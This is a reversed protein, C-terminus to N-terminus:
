DYTHWWKEILFSKGTVKFVPQQKRNLVNKGDCHLTAESKSHVVSWGSWCGQFYKKRNLQEMHNRRFEEMFAELGNVWGVLELVFVCCKINFSHFIYQLFLICCVTQVWRCQCWHVNCLSFCYCYMVIIGHIKIGYIGKLM